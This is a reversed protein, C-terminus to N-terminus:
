SSKKICGRPTIARMITFAAPRSSSAKQQKKALLHAEVIVVKGDELSGIVWVGGWNGNDQMLREIQVRTGVPLVSIVQMDFPPRYEPHTADFDKPALLETHDLGLAHGVILRADESLPEAGCSVLYLNALDWVTGLWPTTQLVMDITAPTLFVVSRALVGLVKEQEHAPFLGRVMPEVKTRTFAVVDIGTLAAPVM